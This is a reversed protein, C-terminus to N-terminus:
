SWEVRLLDSLAVDLPKSTIKAGHHDHLVLRVRCASDSGVAAKLDKVLSEGFIRGHWQRNAEVVVDAYGFDSVNVWSGQAKKAQVKGSAIVYEETKPATVTVNVARWRKDPGDLNIVISHAWGLELEVRAGYRHSRWLSSVLQWLRDLVALITEM